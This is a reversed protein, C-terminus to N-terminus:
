ESTPSLPHFRIIIMITIITGVVLCDKDFNNVREKGKGKGKGEGNKGKEKGKGKGKGWNSSFDRRRTALSTLTM